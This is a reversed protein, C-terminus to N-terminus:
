SKSRSKTCFKHDDCKKMFGYEYSKGHALVKLIVLIKFKWSPVRFISRFEV